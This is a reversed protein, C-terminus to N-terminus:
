PRDHRDPGVRLADALATLFKPVKWGFLDLIPLGDSLYFFQLRSQRPFAASAFLGQIAVRGFILGASMMAFPTWPDSQVHHRVCPTNARYGFFM